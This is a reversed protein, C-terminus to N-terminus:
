WGWYSRQQKEQRLYYECEGRCWSGQWDSRRGYKRHLKKMQDLNDSCIDDWIDHWVTNYRVYKPPVYELADAFIIKVKPHNIYSPGVLNIVDESNEIITVYTVEPKELVAKLVMGLGLGNILVNGKAKHIFVIHDRIESPTNSMITKNGRVLRKYTGPTIYRGSRFSSRLNHFNANEISVTFTEVAWDGCKGDPVDITIEM